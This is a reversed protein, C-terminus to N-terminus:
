GLGGSGVRLPVLLVVVIAVFLLDARRLAPPRPRPMQGAYGRALMAQYVREGRAYSRLFSATAMRGLAGAQLSHAPRYGRAALAARMRRAEAAVVFLYRYMFAAIAVLLRPARLGELGRLVGPFGTTAVLLIAAVTGITAKLGVAAFTELGQQHVTLPGLAYAAGGDRVLPLFAAALLAVPLLFRARRWIEGPAVRALAALAALVALCAAFVVWGGAPTSVAVGIVALLGVIKARPDLRHVPSGPDGATDSLGLGHAHGEGASPGRRRRRLLWAVAYGLAFVALTGLLGALGTAVRENGVGPFAYGSLPADEQAASLTGREGFGQETAVRELGDPHPSAFPAVASALAVACALALAVFLGTPLRRM